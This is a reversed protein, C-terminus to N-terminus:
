FVQLLSGEATIWKARSGPMGINLDATIRYIGSPLGRANMKIQSGNHVDLIDEARCLEYKSQSGLQRAYVRATYPLGKVANGTLGLKLLVDFSQGQLIFLTAHHTEQSLLDISAVDAEVETEASADPETVTGATVPSGPIEEQARVTKLSASERIFDVLKEFQFGAWSNQDGDQVRTVRTRRVTKDDALLLEITFTEYYQRSGELREQTDNETTGAGAIVAAKEIWEQRAIRAPTIGVMGRLAEVLSEPTQAALQGYTFIGAANLRAEVGSGIGPIGKLDDKLNDGNATLQNRDSVNM